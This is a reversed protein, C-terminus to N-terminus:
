TLVPQHAMKMHREEHPLEEPLRMFMDVVIKRESAM